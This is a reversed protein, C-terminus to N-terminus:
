LSDNVHMSENQPSVYAELKILYLCDPITYLFYILTCTESKKIDKSAKKGKLDLQTYTQATEFICAYPM